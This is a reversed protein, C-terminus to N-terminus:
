AVAGLLLVVPIIAALALIALPSGYTKSFTM